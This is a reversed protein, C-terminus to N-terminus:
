GERRGARAGVVLRFDPRNNLLVNAIHTGRGRRQASFIGHDYVSRRGIDPSSWMRAIIPASVLERGGFFRANRLRPEHKSLRKVELNRALHSVSSKGRRQGIGLVM